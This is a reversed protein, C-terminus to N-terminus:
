SGGRVRVLDWNRVCVSDFRGANEFSIVDRNAAWCGIVSLDTLEKLYKIEDESSVTTGITAVVVSDLPYAATRQYEGVGKQFEIVIM